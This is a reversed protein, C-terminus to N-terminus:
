YRAGVRVCALLDRDLLDGLGELVRDIALPQQALDLDQAVELM